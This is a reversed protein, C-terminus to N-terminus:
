ADGEDKVDELAVRAYSAALELGALFDGRHNTQEAAKPFGAIRELATRMTKAAAAPISADGM